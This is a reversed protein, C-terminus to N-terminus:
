ASDQTTKDSLEMQVPISVPKQLTTETLPTLASPFASTSPVMQTAMNSEQVPLLVAGITPILTAAMRASPCAPALLTKHSSPRLSTPVPSTASGTTATIILLPLADLSAYVLQTTLLYLLM